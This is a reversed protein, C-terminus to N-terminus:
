MYDINPLLHEKLPDRGLIPQLLENYVPIEEPLLFGYVTYYIAKTLDRFIRYQDAIQIINRTAFPSSLKGARIATRVADRIDCLQKVVRDDGLKEKMIQKEVNKDYGVKFCVAIRNIVSLDLANGQATYVSANADSFGRLNTNAALIIRMKSHSRIVRGGDDELTITRKPDDSELLRNLALSVHTPIGAAEDIFLIAPKGVENGNEDLGTQMAKVVPGAKFVIHNQKTVHDIEVTNDGIFAERKMAPHCNVQIFEMNLQNALWRVLTSKGCGTPGTLLLVHSAEDLLVDMVDKTWTPPIYTHQHRKPKPIVVPQVKPAPPQQPMMSPAVGDTLIEMAQAITTATQPQKAVPTAPVAAIPKAAGIREFVVSNTDARFNVIIGVKTLAMRVNAKAIREKISELKPDGLNFEARSQAGMLNSVASVIENDTPVNM